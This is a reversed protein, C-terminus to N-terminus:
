RLNAIVTGAALVVAVSTGMVWYRANGLEAELGDRRGGLKAGLLRRQETHKQDWDRMERRLVDVRREIRADLNNIVRLPYFGWHSPYPTAAAM